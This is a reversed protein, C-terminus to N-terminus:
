SFARLKRERILRKVDETVAGSAAYRPHAMLQRAFSDLEASTERLQVLTPRESVPHSSYPLTEVDIHGHVRALAVQRICRCGASANVLGCQRQMWGDLKSRARELRKRFAAPSIELIEAAAESPLEFVVGLIFALRHERDMALMMAHTCSLRVENALARVEPSIEQTTMDGEAGMALVQDLAEFTCVEERASKKARLLHNVAIRWAWTRFSADGRFGTLGRVVKLLIEQTADEADARVALMRMSLRYIDDKIFDVLEGFAADDGAKARDVLTNVATTM